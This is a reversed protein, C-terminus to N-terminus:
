ADLGEKYPLLNFYIKKPARKFFKCLSSSIWGEMGFEKLSYKNWSKLDGKEHTLVFQFDKEKKSSFEIILQKEHINLYSRLVIIIENSGFIFEHENDNEKYVWNGDEYYIKIKHVM